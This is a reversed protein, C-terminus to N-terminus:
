NFYNSLLAKRVCFDHTQTLKMQKNVKKKKKKTESIKM